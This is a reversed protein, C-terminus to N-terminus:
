GESRLRRGQDGRNACVILIHKCAALAEVANLDVIEESVSEPLSACARLSIDRAKSAQARAHLLHHDVHNEVHALNRERM